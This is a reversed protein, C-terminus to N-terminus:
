ALSAEDASDAAVLPGFGQHAVIGQALQFLVTEGWRNMAFNAITCVLRVNDRQYGWAGNLRDLSPAFPRTVLSDNFFPEPSFPIGSLLCRGGQDPVHALHGRTVGSL